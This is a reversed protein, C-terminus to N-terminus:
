TFLEKGKMAHDEAIKPDHYSTERANIMAAEVKKDKVQELSKQYWEDAETYKEMRELATAKRAYVKARRTVEFNHNDNMM